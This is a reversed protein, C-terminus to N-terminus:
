LNDRAVQCEAKDVKNPPKGQMWSLICNYDPSGKSIVKGGKHRELELPKSLLLLREPDAEQGLVVQTMREPELGCISRLTEQSEAPTTAKKFGPYTGSKEAANPDNYQATGDKVIDVYRLGTQSYVRMPRAISGHCDLSGCRREIVLMVESAFIAGDPCSTARPGPAELCGVVGLLLLAFLKM